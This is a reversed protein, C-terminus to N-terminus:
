PEIRLSDLEIAMIDGSEVANTIQEKIGGRFLDHPESFRVMVAFRYLAMDLTGYGELVPNRAWSHGYLLESREWNVFDWIPCGVLTEAVDIFAV